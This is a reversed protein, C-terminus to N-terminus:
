AVAQEKTDPGYSGQVNYLFTYTEPDLQMPKEWQGNVDTITEGKVYDSSRNGADWDTTLFAKVTANDIGAGGGTEYTLNDAGGMDHDVLVSGDGVTALVDLDVAEWLWATVDVDADGANPSKVRLLVAKNAPVPFPATWVGARIDTGFTVTQPGPQIIQGGVSVTLEFDGGTGDLDKVGDGLAIYGICLMAVTASPTDTLVTVTATLDRDANETDLETLSM